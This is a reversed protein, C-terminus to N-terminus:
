APRGRVASRRGLGGRRAAVGTAAARGNAWGAAHLVLDLEDGVDVAQAAAVQAREARQQAATREGAHEAAHVQQREEVRDVAGVVAEEDEHAHLIRRGLADAVRQALDMWLAWAATAALLFGDLELAVLM